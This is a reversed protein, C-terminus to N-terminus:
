LSRNKSSVSLYIYTQKSKTAANSMINHAVSIRKIVEFRIDYELGFQTILYINEIHANVIAGNM